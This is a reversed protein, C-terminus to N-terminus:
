TPYMYPYHCLQVLTEPHNFYKKLIACLYTELEEITDFIHDALEKRLEEFFREM